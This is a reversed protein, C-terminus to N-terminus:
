GGAQSFGVCASVVRKCKTKHLTRGGMVSQPPAHCDAGARGQQGRGARHGTGQARHGTGQARRGRGQARHGTGQARHGTGQARHGTGQGRKVASLKSLGGNPHDSGWNLGNPDRFPSGPSSSGLGPCRPARIKPDSFPGELARTHGFPDPGCEAAFCRREKRTGGIFGGSAQTGLVTLAVNQLLVPGNKEHPEM